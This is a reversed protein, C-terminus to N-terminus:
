ETSRPDDKGTVGAPVLGPLIEQVTRQIGLQRLPIDFHGFAFLLGPLGDDNLKHHGLIAAQGIKM